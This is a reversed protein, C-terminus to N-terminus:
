AAELAPPIARSPVTSCPSTSSYSNYVGGGHGSYYEGSVSNGAITSNLVTLTGGYGNHVGGGFGALGGHASNGAITSNLITCTGSNHVGGGYGFNVSNGAITSNLITCTGSNYVGGGGNGSITSNTVTVTGGFNAVGGYGFYQESADNGSITSNMVTLTGGFNVVGGGSNALGGEASLSRGGSVTTEQVTLQGTSSVALIRFFDPAGSARAITSGNGVITITSTIVPLGTPGYTSNHVETLTQTSGAPLMITDARSGAPCGGTATDTNAAIIADILTCAGGVPITAALAPHQGLALLLAVGALPLRWQRQLARRVRRPLARLQTYSAAFCPLLESRHRLLEPLLDPTNSVAAMQTQWAARVHVDLISTRSAHRM